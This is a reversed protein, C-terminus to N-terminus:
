KTNLLKNYPSVIHTYTSSHKATTFSGTAVRQRKKQYIRKGTIPCSTTPTLPTTTMHRKRRKRPLKREAPLLETVGATSLSKASRKPNLLKTYPSVIHTHFYSHKITNGARVWYWQCRCRYRWVCSLAAVFSLSLLGWCSSGVCSFMRVNVRM